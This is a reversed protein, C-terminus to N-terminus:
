TGKSREEDQAERREAAPTDRECAGGQRENRSILPLLMCFFLM